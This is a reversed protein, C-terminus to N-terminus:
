ICKVYDVPELTNLFVGNEVDVCDLSASSAFVNGTLTTTVLTTIVPTSTTATTMNTPQRTSVLFFGFLKFPSFTTSVYVCKM